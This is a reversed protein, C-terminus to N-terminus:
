QRKGSSVLRTCKQRSFNLSDNAIKYEHEKRLQSVNPTNISYICKNYNISVDPLQVWRENYPNGFQFLSEVQM